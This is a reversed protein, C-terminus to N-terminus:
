CAAAAATVRRARRSTALHCPTTSPTAAGRTRSVSHCARRRRVRRRIAPIRRSRIRPPLVRSCTMRSSPAKVSIPRPITRQIPTVWSAPPTCLEVQGCPNTDTDSVSCSGIPTGCRKVGLCTHPCDGDTDPDCASCDYHERCIEGAACDADTTCEFTTNVNILDCFTAEDALVPCGNLNPEAAAGVCASACDDTPDNCGALCNDVETQFQAFDAPLESNVDVCDPADGSTPCPPAGPIFNSCIPPFPPGGTSPRAPQECVYPLANACARDTWTGGQSSTQIAGCDEPGPTAGGWNTYAFDVPQGGPGGLWFPAGAPGVPTSWRWDGEAGQDNAGMWSTGSAFAAVFGNELADEISVLRRGPLNDCAQAAQSWTAPPCFWYLSQQFARLQCGPAPICSNPDGCVGAGDCSSAADGFQTPCAGDTCPTGAPRLSSLGVCGCQGPIANNQDATCVEICDPSGDHDTDTEPKGCGCAGPATKAPDLTCLDTCDNVGDGDTDGLPCLFTWDFPTCHVTANSVVEIEKAFFSGDHVGVPDPRRLEIRGNPAVLTGFFPAQLFIPVSTDGLVGVLVAGAPGGDDVFAGKYTFTTRVYIFIPGNSKDLHIEAQPETNFSEFFYTGSTLNVRNRSHINFSGYAGPAVDLVPTTGGPAAPMFIDGGNSLPWAVNWTTDAGAVVQNELESGLVMAGAQKTITGGTHVFGTVQANSALFVSSVSSLNGELHTGAALSTGNSGLNGVAVLQGPVGLTTRDDFVLQSTASVCTNELPSGAPIRVTFTEGGAGSVGGSGSSGATGGTGTSGGTTSSGGTGGTGGTGGSGGPEGLVLNDILYPASLRPANVVVKLTLDTYSGELKSEVAAPLPFSVTQYSGALMGVLSRSGLDQWSLGLSPSVLILRVEGWPVSAPLRVAYSATSLVPGLSSLPISNIETWGNPLVGLAASGQAVISSQSLTGSPSSWDQTPAEFGLVRQQTATLAENAVGVNEGPEVGSCALLLLAGGCWIRGILKTM